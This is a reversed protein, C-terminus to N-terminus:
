VSGQAKLHDPLFVELHARHADDIARASLWHEYTERDPFLSLTWRINREITRQRKAQRTAGPNAREAWGM